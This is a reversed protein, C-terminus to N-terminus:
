STSRPQKEFTPPPAPAAPPVPGAHAAAGPGIAQNGVQSIGGQQIVGFNVLSHQQATLPHTDVGHEELFDRIATLAHQYLAFGAQIGDSKQYYNQYVPNTASERISIHAGHDFGPDYALALLGRGRRDRHRSDYGAADLFAGPARRVATYAGALATLRLTDLHQPSPTRTLLDLEHYGSRVPPLIRLAPDIHLAGGTVTLRLFLSPVVDDGWLPLHALLHHRAVGDPDLAIERVTEEPLEAVPALRDPRLLRPDEVAVTGHVAIRHELRLDTLDTTADAPPEAAHRASTERLREHVASIIEWNDFERIPASPQGPMRHEPRLPVVLPPVASIETGHGLYPLYTSHVIVNGRQAEAIAALRAGTWAPGLPEVPADPSYAERRLQGRLRADVDQLHRFTLRHAAALTGLLVLVSPLGALYAGTLWALVGAPALVANLYLAASVLLAAMLVSVLLSRVAHPPVGEHRGRDPRTSYRWRAAGVPRTSRISRATGSFLGLLLAAILLWLPSVLLLGLPLLALAGDRRRRLVQAALAHRAVAVLDVGPSTAVAGLDDAVLHETVQRAFVPDTYTAASLYRTVDGPESGLPVGASTPVTMQASRDLPRGGRRATDATPAAPVTSATPLPPNAFGTLTLALALGLLLGFGALRPVSPEWGVASRGRDSLVLLRTGSDALTTCLAALLGTGLCGGLLRGRGAGFPVLRPTLLFLAALLVVAAVANSWRFVSEGVLLYSDPLEYGTSWALYPLESLLWDPVAQDTYLGASWEQVWPSGLTVLVAALGYLRHRLPRRVARRLGPDAAM